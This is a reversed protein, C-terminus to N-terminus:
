QDVLQALLLAGVWVARHLGSGASGVVVWIAGGPGGPCASVGSGFDDAEDAVVVCDHDCVGAFDEAFVCDVWFLVAM